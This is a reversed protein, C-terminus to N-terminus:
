LASTSCFEGRHGARSSATSSTPCKWSGQIGEGSASGIVSLWPHEPCLNSCSDTWDSGLSRQTWSRTQSISHLAPWRSVKLVIMLWLKLEWSTLLWQRPTQPSYISWSQNRGLLFETHGSALTLTHKCFRANTGSCCDATSLPMQRSWHVRSLDWTACGKLVGLRCSILEILEWLCANMTSM